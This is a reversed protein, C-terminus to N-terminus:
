RVECIVQSAAQMEQWRKHRRANAEADEGWQERQWDEDVHAAAWVEEVSLRGEAHAAALLASGTLTTAIHVAALWLADRGEVWAALRAISQPSQTVPMVGEALVFRAQLAELAWALVPDWAEAQREVLSRPSEARYCLLDSGAYKVIDAAVDAERRRVGDIASNVLRTLPMRSPDILEEQGAWEQAVLEALTPTPLGLLQKRPTRAPRGDLLVCWGAGDGTRDEVGVETYFRKPLVPKPIARGGAPMSHGGERTM